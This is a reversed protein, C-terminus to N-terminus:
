NLARMEEEHSTKDASSECTARQNEVGDDENENESDSRLKSCAQFCPGLVREEKTPPSDNAFALSRQLSLALSAASAPSPKRIQTDRHLRISILNLNFVEIALLARADLIWCRVRVRIAKM